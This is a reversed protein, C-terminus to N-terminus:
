QYKNLESYNLTLCVFYVNDYDFLEGLSRLYNNQNVGFNMQCQEVLFRIVNEKFFILRIM